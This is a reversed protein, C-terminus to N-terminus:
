SHNENSQAIYVGQTEIIDPSVNFLRLAGSSIKAFVPAAVENGYYKGASPENISVVVAFRPEVAPALGAFVARHKGTEYGNVGIKRATGSKGAIRYGNVKAKSYGDEISNALMSVMERAIQDSMVRYGTVHGKTKVFSVPRRIGGAGLVAYARALQLPTVAVGYGFSMTASEFQNYFKNQDLIGPNEGPFGSGTTDGLGLRSYTDWLAGSPLDLVLKSVGVNSSRSLINQVDVAGYNRLDRVVGGPLSLYGPATNIVTSANIKLNELASAVSFTKISSGPEFHDTVARNRYNETWGEKEKMNPNYTPQNVMALVEGTDIDLVVASGSKAKHKQVAFQLERFALYQLRQDLSLALDKGPEQETIEQLFEVERGMRDRIIKRVGAKGKLWSDYQLEIGEQGKDDINTFGIVHSTIEGAPYYRKYESKLHIGQLKMQKIKKAVIPLVQRKLYFFEKDQYRKLKDIILSEDVETLKALDNIQKTTAQFKEPNIWVSQVHTSVALPENNRDTIIGRVSSSEIKRITRVDGQEQLFSKDLLQLELIRYSLAVFATASVLLFIVYRLNFKNKILKSM